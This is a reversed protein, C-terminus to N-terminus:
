VSLLISRPPNRNSEYPLSTSLSSLCRFPYEQASRLFVRTSRRDEFANREHTIRVPAGNTSANEPQYIAMRRNHVDDTIVGVRRAQQIQRSCPFQCLAQYINMSHCNYFWSSRRQLAALNVRLVSSVSERRPSGRRRQASCLDEDVDALRPSVRLSLSPNNHGDCLQSQNRPIGATRSTWRPGRWGPWDRSTQQTATAKVSKAM